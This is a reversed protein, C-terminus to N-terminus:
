IYILSSRSYVHGALTMFITSSHLCWQTYMIYVPFTYTPTTQLIPIEPVFVIQQLM